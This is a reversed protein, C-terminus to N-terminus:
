CVLRQQPRWQVVCPIVVDYQLAELVKAQQLAINMESVWVTTSSIMVYGLSQKWLLDSNAFGSTKCM